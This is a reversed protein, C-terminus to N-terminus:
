RSKFREILETHRGSVQISGPLLGFGPLDSLPLLYDVEVTLPAGRGFSGLKTDLRLRSVDLRLEASVDEARQKAIDNASEANDAQSAARAAERTVAEVASKTSLLRGSAVILALIVLLVPAMLVLEISANGEDRRIMM